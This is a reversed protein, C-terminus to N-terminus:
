HEPLEKKEIKVNRVETIYPFATCEKGNKQWSSLPPSGKERIRSERLNRQRKFATLPPEPFYGSLHQDQDVM